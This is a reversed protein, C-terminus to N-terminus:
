EEGGFLLGLDELDKETIPMMLEDVEQFYGCECSWYHEIGVMRIMTRHCKPCSNFCINAM